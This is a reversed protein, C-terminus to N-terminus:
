NEVAVTTEDVRRLTVKSTCQRDKQLSIGINEEYFESKSWFILWILKFVCM